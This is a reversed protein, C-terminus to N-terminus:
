RRHNSCLWWLFALYPFGTVANFVASRGGSSAAHDVVGFQQGLESTGALAGLHDGFPFFSSLSSPAGIIGSQRKGTGHEARFRAHLEADDPVFQVVHEFRLQSPYTPPPTIATAAAAASEIQLLQSDTSRRGGGGGGGDVSWRGV